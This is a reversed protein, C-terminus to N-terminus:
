VCAVLDIFADHVLGNSALVDGTDLHSAGGALDTVRGGAEEIILAGASVDWRSLGFEWFVEATGSAVACLDLAASGMRRIGASARAIRELGPLYRPLHQLDRFPIGTLALSGAATAERSVELRRSGLFAGEGKAAHYLEDRVPDHIAAAVPVGRHELSIAAAFFPIGRIFNTTGDLPDIVWCWESSLAGRGGEEALISHGPHAARLVDCAAKEAAVDVETVFDARSKEKVSFGLSSGGAARRSEHAEAIVAGAARAARIATELFESM